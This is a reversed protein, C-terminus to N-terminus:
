AHARLPIFRGPPFVYEQRSLHIMGLYTQSSSIEQGYQGLQNKVAVLIVVDMGAVRPQTRNRAVKTFPKANPWVEVPNGRASVYMMQAPSRPDRVLQTDFNFIKQAPFCM